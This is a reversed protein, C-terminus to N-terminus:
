EADVGTLGLLKRGPERLEGDPMVYKYLTAKSVGLEACLATVSSDRDKLASQAARLNLATFAPKRGGKRGRARAAALGAKTRESILDAEFEALAAFMSFCLRGEPTGTDITSGLGTLCRFGVGRQGLGHVTEILHSTSRGLRDLKWIVLTDGERLAKLCADLGPRSDQKGSAHDTYIQAEDVGAAVLADRQLATTQDATSVREYGILM